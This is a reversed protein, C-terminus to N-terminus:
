EEYAHETFTCDKSLAFSDRLGETVYYTGDAFVFVAEAHFYGLTQLTEANLGNIFCSTSLADATIGAGSKVTVSILGSDAPMCTDPALIHHYTKGNETFCKEYSGSTSIFTGTRKDPNEIKLEAFCDNATGFPDRIGIKWAKKMPQRGFALVTGGFTVTAPIQANKLVRYAEDLAAGKGFAGPDLKVGEELVATNKETNLTFKEIGTHLRAEKLEEDSPKSPSDTQFGWLETAAGLTIDLTGGCIGCLKVCDYLFKSTKADLEASGNRNLREVDSNEVTPSILKDLGYVADSIGAFITKAQKDNTYASASLVSGMAFIENHVAAASCGTFLMLVAIFLATISFLTKKM